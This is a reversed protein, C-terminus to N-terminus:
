QPQQRRWSTTIVKVVSSRAFRFDAEVQRASKIELLEKPLWFKGNFTLTGIHKLDIDLVVGCGERMESADVQSQERLLRFTKCAQEVDPAGKVITLATSNFFLYFM